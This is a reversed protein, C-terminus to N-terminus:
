IFLLLLTKLNLNTTGGGSCFVFDEQEVAQDCLIDVREKLQKAEDQTMKPHTGTIWEATCEVITAFIGQNVATSGEFNCSM